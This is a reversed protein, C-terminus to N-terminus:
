SAIRNLIGAAVRKVALYRQRLTPKRYFGIAVGIVDRERALSASSVSGDGAHLFYTGVRAVLRHLIPEQNSAFLVVDGVQPTLSKVVVSQGFTVTSGM